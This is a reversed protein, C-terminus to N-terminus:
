TLFVANPTKYNLAQHKRTFNYFDFFQSLGKFLESGDQYLHLYVHEYKVTRWLREIFINDLARGRGDMSIQLPKSKLVNIFDNSTFQSGQDTNFIKPSGFKDFAEELAQVCFDSTMTNSVRWALVFRSFWDIIAILYMFGKQMPIYTIDTSWVQMPHTIAVNRLLYPYIKHAPHPKSLNPRQYIAQIDMLRMLRRIRKDNVPNMRQWDVAEMVLELHVKIRRYGFCPYDTHLRDIANMLLINDDNHAEVPAYYYSSRAIGLM